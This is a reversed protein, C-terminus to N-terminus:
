ACCDVRIGQRMIHIIHPVPENGIGLLLNRRLLHIVRQIMMNSADNM